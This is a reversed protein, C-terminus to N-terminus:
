RPSRLEIGYRAYIERLTGARELKELASDIANVLADDGRRVGVAYSWRLEPESEYAHILRVRRDAHRHNFYGIATPTAAAAAIEGNALAELMDDEFGFVSIQLGRQGLIMSAVSSRLVGVKGKGALDDFTGIAPADDQVALAVGGSQYPRSLMVGSEEQAQRDNIANLIIDCGVRRLHYQMVVWKIELDVGLTEAIAQGLEIQFGPPEGRKSSYPLANPNACLSLTGRAEISALTRAASPLATTLIVLAAIAAILSKSTVSRPSEVAM